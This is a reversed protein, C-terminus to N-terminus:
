RRGKDAKADWLKITRDEGASALTNGDPSFALAWIVTRGHGRLTASEKGTEADWLRVTRDAGASALMKGDPSFAM